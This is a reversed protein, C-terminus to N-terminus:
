VERGARWLADTFPQMIYQLMTRERAVIMVEAPMGVMLEEGIGAAELDDRTVEVRAAYHSTGTRPDPIADASVKTVTGIVKPTKRSSFSSFHVHTKMGVEVMDIDQPSVLADVVLKENTPVIDLVRQGSGIVGGETKIQLNSVVGALPATVVTRDLVDRSAELMQELEALEGRIKGAHESVLEMREADIALLEIEAEGIQQQAAAISATHEGRFGRIQAAERQLRLLEVKPALGQRLLQSKDRIEENMLVLQESGSSVQARYGQIQEELQHVRQGLVRKRAEVIANRALLIRTEAAIVAASKPDALLDPPFAIEQAGVLEAELRAAQAARARWRDLLAAVDTKSAISRLELLPDGAEVADGDRVLLKEVIGGELHQVTRVSGFPAIHGPAMAGGALPALGGWVGFVGVFSGVVALGIRSPGRVAAAPTTVAYGAIESRHDLYKASM